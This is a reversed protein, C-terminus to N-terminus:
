AVQAEQGLSDTNTNEALLELTKQSETNAETEEILQEHFCVTKRTARPGAAVSSSSASASSESSQYRNLLYAALLVLLGGVLFQIPSAMSQVWLMFIFGKMALIGIELLQEAMVATTQRRTDEM